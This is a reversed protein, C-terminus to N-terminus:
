HTTEEKTIFNYIKVHLSFLQFQLLNKAVPIFSTKRVSGKLPGETQTHTHTQLSGQLQLFTRIFYHEAHGRLVLARAAAIAGDIEPAPVVLNNDGVYISGDCPLPCLWAASSLQLKTGPPTFSHTQHSKNNHQLDSM